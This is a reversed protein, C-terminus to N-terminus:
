FILYYFTDGDVLRSPTPGTGQLILPCVLHQCLMNSTDHHHQLSFPLSLVTALPLRVQYFLRLLFSFNEFVLQAIWWIDLRCLSAKTNTRMNSLNLSAISILRVCLLSLSPPCHPFSNPYISLSNHLRATCATRGVSTATYATLLPTPPTMAAMSCINIIAGRRREVMQPLLMHTLVTPAVVNVDMLEWMCRHPVLAFYQPHEYHVAQNNM